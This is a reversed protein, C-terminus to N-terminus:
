DLGRFNRSPITTSGPRNELAPYYDRPDYQSLENLLKRVESDIISKIENPDTKGLAPTYAHIQRCQFTQAQPEAFVRIRSLYIGINDELVRVDCPSFTTFSTVSRSPTLASATLVNSNASSCPLSLRETKEGRTPLFRGISARGFSSPRLYTLQFRDTRHRRLTM